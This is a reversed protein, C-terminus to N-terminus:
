IFPSRPFNSKGRPDKTVQILHYLFSNWGASSKHGAKVMYTHNAERWARVLCCSSSRIPYFGMEIHPVIIGLSNHTYFSSLLMIEFWISDVLYCVLIDSKGELQVHLIVYWFRFGAPSHVKSDDEWALIM